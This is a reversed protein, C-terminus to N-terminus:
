EPHLAEVEGTMPNYGRQRRPDDENVVVYVIPPNYVLEAGAFLAKAAAEIKAYRAESRGLAMFGAKLEAEIENKTGYVRAENRVLVPYITV